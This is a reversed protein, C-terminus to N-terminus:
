RGNALYALLFAMQTLVNNALLARRTLGGSARCLLIGGIVATLIACGSINLQKWTLFSFYVISAALILGMCGASALPGCGRVLARVAPSTQGDPRCFQGVILMSWGGWVPMLLLVRHVKYEPLMWALPAPLSLGSYVAGSDLRVLCFALLVVLLASVSARATLERGGLIEAFSGLSRRFPGLVYLTLTALAPMILTFTGVQHFALAAASWVAIAALGMGVSLLMIELWAFRFRAPAETALGEDSATLLLYGSACVVLRRWGTKKANSM